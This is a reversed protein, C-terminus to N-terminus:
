DRRTGDAVARMMWDRIWVGLSLGIETQMLCILFNLTISLFLAPLARPLTAGALGLIDPWVDTLAYGEARLAIAAMALPLLVTVAAFLLYAMLRSYPRRSAWDPRAPLTGRWLAGVIAAALVPVAMFALRGTTPPLRANFIALWWVLLLGPLALAIFLGAWRWKGPQRSAATM